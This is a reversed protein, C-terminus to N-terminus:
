DVSVGLQSLKKAFGEATNLTHLHSGDPRRYSIVGGEDLPTVLVTDRATEVHFEHVKIDSGVLLELTVSGSAGALVYRGPCGHILRWRWKLFLDDFTM